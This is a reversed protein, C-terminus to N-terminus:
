VFLCLVGSVSIFHSFRDTFMLLCLYQIYNYEDIGMLINFGHRPLNSHLTTRFFFFFIACFWDNRGRREELFFFFFTIFVIVSWTPLASHSRLLLFPSARRRVAMRHTLHWGCRVAPLCPTSCCPPPSTRSWMEKEEDERQGRGSGWEHNRWLAPLQCCKLNEVATFTVVFFM